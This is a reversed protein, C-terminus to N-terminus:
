DDKGGKAGWPPSEDGAITSGLALASSKRRVQPMGLIPVGLSVPQNRPSGGLSGAGGAGPASLFVDSSARRPPPPTRLATHPNGVIANRFTPSAVAGLPSGGPTYVGPSVGGGWPEYGGPNYSPTTTSSSTAVGPSPPALLGGSDDRKSGGFSNRVRRPLISRPLRAALSTFLTTILPQKKLSASSPHSSTTPSSGFSPLANDNASLSLFLYLPIFWVCIASQPSCALAILDACAGLLDGCSLSLTTARM